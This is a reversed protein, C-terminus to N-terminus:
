FLKIDKRTHVENKCFHELMLMVEFIRIYQASRKGGLKEDLVKGESSSFVMLLVIFVGSMENETKLSVSTYNGPFHTRPLNHDSQHM